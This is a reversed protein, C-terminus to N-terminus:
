LHLVTESVIQAISWAGLLIAAGIVTYLLSNKATELQKTDGKATVFLYGSYIIFFAIIPIGIKIAGELLVKIFDNITDYNIPNQIRTTVAPTLDGSQSTSNSLDGTQSTPTQAFSIVPLAVTFLLLAFFSLTKFTKNMSNM